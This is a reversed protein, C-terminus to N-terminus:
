GNTTFNSETADKIIKKQTEEDTALWKAIELWSILAGQTLNSIIDVIVHYEMNKADINDPRHYKFQQIIHEGHGLEKVKVDVVWLKVGEEPFDKPYSEYTYQIGDGISKETAQLFATALIEKAVKLKETTGM